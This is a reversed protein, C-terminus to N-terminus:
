PPTSPKQTELMGFQKGWSLGTANEYIKIFPTLEFFGRLVVHAERLLNKLEGEAQSINLGLHNIRKFTLSRSHTKHEDHSSFFEVAEEITQPEDRGKFMYESLWITALERSLREYDECIELLELSYKEILPIYAPLAEPGEEKLAKRANEFGRRLARTPAGNIQPDIPGLSASPLLIIEEGSLALMTAASYASHPVLFSVEQFRGRLLDVIRETAEPSGGPSHILVDIRNVEQDISEVLDVFGDIDEFDISIPVPVQPPAIPPPFQVAYVILPRQRIAEIDQYCARRLEYLNIEEPEGSRLKNLFDHWDSIRTFRRRPTSTM